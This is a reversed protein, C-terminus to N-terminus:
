HGGTRRKLDLHINKERTFSILEEIGEERGGGSRRYGGLPAVLFRKSVDNIWVFGAEVAAADRHATILDNTLDLLHPRIRGPQGTAADEGRREM